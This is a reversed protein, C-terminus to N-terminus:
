TRPNSRDPYAAAGAEALGAVQLQEAGRHATTWEEAVDRAGRHIARSELVVGAVQAVHEALHGLGAGTAAAELLVELGHLLRDIRGVRGVSAEEPGIGVERDDEDRVFVVARYGVRRQEAGLVGRDSRLLREAARPEADQAVVTARRAIGHVLDA